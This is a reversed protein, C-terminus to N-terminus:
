NLYKKMLYLIILLGALSFSLWYFLQTHDPHVLGSPPLHEAAPDPKVFVQQVTNKKLFDLEESYAIGYNISNYDLSPDSFHKRSRSCFNFAPSGVRSYYAYIIWEDGKEIQVPCREGNDIEICSRKGAAGKFLDEVSFWVSSVGYKVTVSDVQGQFILPYEKLVEVSLKKLPPCDCSSSALSVPHSLCFFAFLIFVSIRNYVVMRNM